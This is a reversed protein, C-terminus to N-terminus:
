GQYLKATSYDGTIAEYNRRAANEHEVAQRWCLMEANNQGKFSM